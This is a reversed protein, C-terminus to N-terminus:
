RLLHLEHNPSDAYIGDVNFSELSNDGFCGGEDAADEGGVFSGSIYAGLGYSKGGFFGDCFYESCGGSEVPLIAFDGGGFAALGVKYNLAGDGATDFFEADVADVERQGM